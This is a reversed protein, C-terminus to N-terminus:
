NRASGDKHQHLRLSEAKLKNGWPVVTLLMRGATMKPSELPTALDPTKPANNRM